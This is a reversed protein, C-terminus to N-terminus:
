AASPKNGPRYARGRLVAVSEGRQNTVGVDYVGNRGAQSIVEAVASLLDGQYVPALLDIAFSAAVAPRGYSNCAYAFATDALTGILGGHCIGFGNLMDARVPMTVTARGPAIASVQMGLAHAAADSPWMREKVADATAQPDPTTDAM